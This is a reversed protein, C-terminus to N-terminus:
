QILVTLFEMLSKWFSLSLVQALNLKFVHPAIKPLTMAVAVGIATFVQRRVMMRHLTQIDRQDLHILRKIRADSISSRKEPCYMMDSLEDCIGQEIWSRTQILSLEGNIDNNPTHDDEDVTDVDKDFTSIFSPSYDVNLENSPSAMTDNKNRGMWNDSNEVDRNFIQENACDDEDDGCFSDPYKPLKSVSTGIDQETEDNKLLKVDLLVDNRSLRMMTNDVMAIALEHKAWVFIGSLVLLLWFIQLQVWRRNRKQMLESHYRTEQLIKQLQKDKEVLLQRLSRLTTGNEDLDCDHSQNNEIKIFDTPKSMMSIEDQTVYSAVTEMDSLALAITKLWRRGNSRNGKENFAGTQKEQNDRGERNDAEPITMVNLARLVSVLAKYARWFDATKKRSNVDRITSECISAEHESFREELDKMKNQIESVSKAIMTVSKAITAIGPQESPAM